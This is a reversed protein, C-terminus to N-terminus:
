LMSLRLVSLLSVLSAAMMLYICIKRFRVPMNKMRDIFFIGFFSIIAPIGLGMAWLFAENDILAMKRPEPREKTLTEPNLIYWGVRLDMHPLYEVVISTEPDLDYDGSIEINKTEHNENTITVVIRNKDCIRIEGAAEAYNQTLLYPLDRLIPITFMFFPFAALIILGIINELYSDSQSVPKSKQSASASKKRNIMVVLTLIIIISFNMFLFIILKIYDM